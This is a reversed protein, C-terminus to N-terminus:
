RELLRELTALDTRIATADTEYIRVSQDARRRFVNFGYTRMLHRIRDVIHVYELAESAV